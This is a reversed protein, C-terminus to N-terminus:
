RGNEAIISLMEELGSELEQGKLGERLLSHLMQFQSSLQDLKQPSSLSLQPKMEAFITLYTRTFFISADSARSADALKKLEIFATKLRNINRQEALGTKNGMLEKPYIVKSRDYIGKAKLDDSASVLSAVLKRMSKAAQSTERSSNQTTEVIQALFQDFMQNIQMLREQGLHLRVAAEMATSDFDKWYADEALNRARGAQDSVQAASLAASLRTSIRNIVDPWPTVNSGALLSTRSPSASDALVIPAMSLGDAPVTLTTQQPRVGAEHWVFLDYAGAPVNKLQFRGKRDIATIWPTEEIVVFGRMHQHINCFIRLIGTTAPLFDALQGPPMTQNFLEGRAQVNVNHFESDENTFRIQQGKKLVLVRPVFQLASQQMLATNKLDQSLAQKKAEDAAAPDQPVLWIVAPSVEPSCTSPMRIEGSVDGAPLRCVVFLLLILATRIMEFCKVSFGIRLLLM